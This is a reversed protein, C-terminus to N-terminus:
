KQRKYEKFLLGGFIFCLIAGGLMIIPYLIEDSGIAAIILATASAVIGLAGGLTLAGFGRYLRSKPLIRDLKSIRESVLEAIGIIMLAAPIVSIISIVAVKNVLLLVLGTIYAIWGVNGPLDYAIWRADSIKSEYKFESQKTQKKM